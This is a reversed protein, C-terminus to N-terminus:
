DIHLKRQAAIRGQYIRRQGSALDEYHDPSGRGPRKGGVEADRHMRIKLIRSKFVAIFHIDDRRLQKIRYGRFTTQTFAIGVAFANSWFHECAKRSRLQVFELTPM